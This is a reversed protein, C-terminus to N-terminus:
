TVCSFLLSIKVLDGSGSLSEPCFAAQARIAPNFAGCASSYGFPCAIWKSIEAPKHSSRNPMQWSDRGWDSNEMGKEAM